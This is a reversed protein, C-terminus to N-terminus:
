HWPSTAFSVRLSICAPKRLYGHQQLCCSGMGSMVLVLQFRRLGRVESATTMAGLQKFKLYTLTLNHGKDHREWGEPVPPYTLRQAAEKGCSDCRFPSHEANTNLNVSTGRKLLINAQQRSISNNLMDLSSSVLSLYRHSIMVGKRQASPLQTSVMM